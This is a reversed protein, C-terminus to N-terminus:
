QKSILNISLVYGNLDYWPSYLKANDGKVNGSTEIYYYHGSVYLNVRPYVWSYSTITQVFHSNKVTGEFIDCFLSKHTFYKTSVPKMATLTTMLPGLTGALHLGQRTGGSCRRIIRM